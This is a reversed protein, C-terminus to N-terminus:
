KPFGIHRGVLLLVIGVVVILATVGITVTWLRRGTRTSMEKGLSPPNEM